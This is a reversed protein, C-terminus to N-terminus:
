TRGLARQIRRDFREPKQGRLWPGILRPAFRPEFCAANIIAGDYRLREALADLHECKKLRRTGERKGYGRGGMYPLCGMKM